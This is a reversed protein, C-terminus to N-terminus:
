FRVMVGRTLLNTSVLGGSFEPSSHIVWPGLGIRQQLPEAGSNPGERGAITGELSVTM